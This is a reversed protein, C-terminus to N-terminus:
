LTALCAGHLCSLIELVNPHDLVGMLISLEREVKALDFVNRPAVSALNSGRIASISHFVMSIQHFVIFFVISIRQVNTFITSIHSTFGKTLYLGMNPMSGQMGPTKISAKKLSKIAVDGFRPHRGLFVSGFAGSGIVRIFSYEGVGDKLLAEEAGEKPFVCPFVAQM